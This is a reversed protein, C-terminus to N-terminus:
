LKLRDFLKNPNPPLFKTKWELLCGAMITPSKLLRILTKDRTSKIGWAKEHFYLKKAIEANVKLRCNLSIM